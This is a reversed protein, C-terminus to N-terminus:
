RSNRAELITIGGKKGEAAKLGSGQLLKDLAEKVSMTGKVEVSSKGKVLEQPAMILMDAQESFKVLAEGLAQQPINFYRDAAHASVGVFVLAAIMSRILMPM